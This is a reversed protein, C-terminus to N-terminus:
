AATSDKKVVDHTSTEMEMELTVKGSPDKPLRIHKVMGERIGGVRVAAGEELGAVNDFQTRIKYSSHFMAARNGILFVAAAFCALGLILFAGLRFERSM